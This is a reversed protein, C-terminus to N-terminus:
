LPFGTQSHATGVAQGAMQCPLLKLNDSFVTCIVANCLCTRLFISKVTDTIIGEVSSLLYQCHVISDDIIYYRIFDIDMDQTARRVDNTISRMVVGGKITANRSLPSLSLAKLVIDQCVRARADDPEYGIKKMKETLDYLNM